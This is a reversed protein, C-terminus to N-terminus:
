APAGGTKDAICGRVAQLVDHPDAPKSLFRDCGVTQARELHEPLSYGSLMIVCQQPDSAKILAAASWGDLVPLSADMLVAAPHLRLAAKVGEAGNSAIAVDFGGRRFIAAMLDQVARDDEVVLVLEGM